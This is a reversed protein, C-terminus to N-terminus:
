VAMEGVMKEASSVVLCRASDVVKWLDWSEAKKQEMMDAM